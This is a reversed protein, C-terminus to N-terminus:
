RFNGAPFYRPGAYGHAIISQIDINGGSHPSWLKILIFRGSPPPDFKISVMSKAREIFFRAHPRLVEHGRSNIVSYQPAAPSAPSAVPEISNPVQRRRQLERQEMAYQRRSTRMYRLLDRRRRNFISMENPDYDSESEDSESCLIDDEMQEIQLGEIEAISPADEENEQEYFNGHDSNEDYDITLRFDPMPGALTIFDNDSDSHSDSGGLVTRELSQLPYRFGNLYEESPQMGNRRNRRRRRANSYQIQYQATRALLEDSSMSVFVMGEQIPADYGSKPAKIVLKKLCFPTEGRHKLILNCRDSKTCYVSSDNRLVNDPWSSDGEPEYTGGDCSAIEMKLTGPVVQGYQGYGLGRLGERNDDTELKRRKTRWRNARHDDGLEPSMASSMELRPVPEDLLSNLAPERTRGERSPREGGRLVRRRSPRGVSRSLDSSGPEQNMATSNLAPPPPQSPDHGLLISRIREERGNLDSQLQQIQRDVAARAEEFSSRDRVRDSRYEEIEQNLTELARATEASTNHIRESNLLDRLHQVRDVNPRQPREGSRSAPPYDYNGSM